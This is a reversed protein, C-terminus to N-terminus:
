FPAYKDRIPAPEGVVSSAHTTYKDSHAGSQHRHNHRILAQYVKYLHAAPMDDLRQRFGMNRIIGAIYSDAIKGTSQEKAILHRLRIEDGQATRAVWYNDGAIQGFHSMLSDFDRTPSAQKTTYVGCAALLQQRYWTEYAGDAAPNCGTKTCHARWARQVLPRYKSQQPRTLMIIGKTLIDAVRSKTVEDRYFRLFPHPLLKANSFMGVAYRSGYM